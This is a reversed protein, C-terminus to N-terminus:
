DHGYNGRDSNNLNHTQIAHGLEQYARYRRRGARKVADDEDIFEAVRGFREFGVPVELALNVLVDAMAEPAAGHGILVPVEDSAGPHIEHAVFSGQRFTWLLDDMTRTEEESGTQLYVRHGQRYAKEILKCATIRRNQPDATALLYFDIRTM